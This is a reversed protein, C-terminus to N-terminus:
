KAPIGKLIERVEAAQKGKPEMELYKQFASRAAAMHGDNLEVMGLMYYASAFKPDLKLTEEVHTRAEKIHGANFAEVGRNYIKAPDPGTLVELADTFKKENAADKRSKYINSLAVLVNRDDAKRAYASLLLPEAADKKGVQFYTLGLIREVMDLKPRLEAKAAESTTKEMSEKLAKHASEFPVLVEAFKGQNYLELNDNFQALGETELKAGEDTPPPAQAGAAVQVQGGKTLVVDKRTTDNALPRLKEIVTGYGDLSYTIEHETPELVHGYEGKADTTITKSWTSTLRKMVIKVGALPKGEKDTVKGAIRGINQAAAPLAVGLVLAPLLLYTLPRTM